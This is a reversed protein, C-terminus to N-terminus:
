IRNNIKNDEEAKIEKNEESKKIEVLNKNSNCSNSYRIDVEIQNDNAQERRNNIKNDEEAKIEKNEESKKTEVVEIQNDNAQESRKTEVVEIQNHNDNAQERRPLYNFCQKIKDRQWIAVGIATLLM